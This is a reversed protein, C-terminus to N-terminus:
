LITVEDAKLQFADKLANVVMIVKEASYDKPMEIVMANQDPSNKYWSLLFFLNNGLSFFARKLFDLDDIDEDFEISFNKEFYEPPKKIWAKHRTDVLGFKEVNIEIFEDISIRQIVM